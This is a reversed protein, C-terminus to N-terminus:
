QPTVDGFFLTKLWSSDKAPGVYESEALLPMKKSRTQIHKM